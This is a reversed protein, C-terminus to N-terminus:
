PALTVTRYPHRLDDARYLVAKAAARQGAAPASLVRSWSQGSGLRIKRTVPARGAISVKLM